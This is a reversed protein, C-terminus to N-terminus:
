LRRFYVLAADASKRCRGCDRRMSSIPVSGKGNAAPGSGPSESAVYWSTRTESGCCLSSTSYRPAGIILDAPQPGPSGPRTGPPDTDRRQFRHSARGPATPVEDTAAALVQACYAALVVLFGFRRVSFNSPRTMIDRHQCATSGPYALTTGRARRRGPIARIARLVVVRTALFGDATLRGAPTADIVGSRHRALTAILEGHAGIDPGLDWKTHCPDGTHRRRHCANSGPGPATASGMGRVM